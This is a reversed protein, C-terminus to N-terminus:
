CVAGMGNKLTATEYSLRSGFVGSKLLVAKPTFIKVYFIKTQM